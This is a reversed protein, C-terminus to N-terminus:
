GERQQLESEGLVAVIGFVITFLGTIGGIFWKLDDIRKETSALRKDLDEFRTKVFDEPRGKSDDEM